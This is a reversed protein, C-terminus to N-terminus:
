VDEAHIVKIAVTRYMPKVRKEITIFEDAQLNVASAIHLADMGGMGTLCALNHAQTVLDDCIACAEVAITDFFDRYFAIEEARKGHTAHPVTELEVLKTTVFDRDADNLIALTENHLAASGNWASLLINSDLYTRKPM